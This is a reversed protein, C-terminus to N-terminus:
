NFSLYKKYLSYFFDRCSSLNKEKTSINYAKKDKNDIKEINNTYQFSVIKVIKEGELPIGAKHSFLVKAYSTKLFPEYYNKMWFTEWSLYEQKQKLQTIEKESSFNQVFVQIAFTFIVLALFFLSYRIFRLNLKM